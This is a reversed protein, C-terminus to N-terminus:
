VTGQLLVAELQPLATPCNKAEFRRHWTVPVEVAVLRLMKHKTQLRHKIDKRRFLWSNWCIHWRTAPALSHIFRRPTTSLLFSSHDKDFATDINRNSHRKKGYSLSSTVSSSYGSLRCTSLSSVSLLLLLLLLGGFLCASRLAPLCCASFSPLPTHPM